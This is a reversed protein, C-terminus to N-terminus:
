SHASLLKMRNTKKIVGVQDDSDGREPKSTQEQERRRRTKTVMAFLVFVQMLHLMEIVFGANEVWM